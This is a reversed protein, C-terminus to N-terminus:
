AALAERLAEQREQQKARARARRESQRRGSKPRTARVIKTGHGKSNRNVM